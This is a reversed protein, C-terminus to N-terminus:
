REEQGEFTLGHRSSEGRSDEEDEGEQQEPDCTRPEAGVLEEHAHARPVTEEADGAGEVGGHIADTRVVSDLPVEDM